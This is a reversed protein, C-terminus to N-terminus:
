RCLVSEYVRYTDGAPGNTEGTNLLEEIRLHGHAYTLQDMLPHSNYEQARLSVAFRADNSSLINISFFVIRVFM